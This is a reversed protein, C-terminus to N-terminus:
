RVEGGIEVLYNMYGKSELYEAAKDVGFGKAIASLDCQIGPIEKKIAPPSSSPRVSLKQYGTKAMVKKIQDDGPIQRDTKAPGFGWLNVLPGVTIDFAGNSLESVRLAETFVLATDSSVDFWGTEQFRNFRSIESDKVWTSMQQNVTTLIEGIDKSLKLTLESTTFELDEPKKLTKVM